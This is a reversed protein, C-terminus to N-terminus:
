YENMWLEYLEWQDIPDPIQFYDFVFHDFYVNGHIFVIRSAHVSNPQTIRNASSLKVLSATDWKEVMSMQIRPYIRKSYVVLPNESCAHTATFCFKNSWYMLIYRMEPLIRMKLDYITDSKPNYPVSSLEVLKERQTQFFDIPSGRKQQESNFTSILNLSDQSRVHFGCVIAFLFFMIFKYSKM